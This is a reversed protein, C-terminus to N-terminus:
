GFSFTAASKVMANQLNQVDCPKEFHSFVVETVGKLFPHSGEPCVCVCVSQCVSVSLFVCVCECM